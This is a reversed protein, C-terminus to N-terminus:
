GGRQRAALTSRLDIRARLRGLNTDPPLSLAELRLPRTPDDYMTFPDHAGGLLGAGQGVGSVSGERVPGCLAVYGLAGHPAPGFRDGAGAPPKPAAAARQRLFDPLTLGALGISGVTLLERRSPTDCLRGGRGQISLM